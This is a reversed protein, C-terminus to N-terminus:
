PDSQAARDACYRTERPSRMPWVSCHAITRGPCAIRQCHASARDSCGHRQSAFFEVWSLLRIRGAWPSCTSAWRRSNRLKGCLGDRIYRFRDRNTRHNAILGPNKPLPSKRCSGRDMLVASSSSTSTLDVPSRLPRVSVNWGCQSCWPRVLEEVPVKAGCDDCILISGTQGAM